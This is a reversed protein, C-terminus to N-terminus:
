SGDCLIGLEELRLAANDIAAGFQRQKRATRCQKAAAVSNSRLNLITTQNEPNCFGHNVGRLNLYSDAREVAVCDGPQFTRKASVVMAMGDAGFDIAYLIAGEGNQDATESSTTMTDSEVAKSTDASTRNLTLQSFPTMGRLVGAPLTPDSWSARYHQTIRGYTVSISESGPSSHSQARLMPSCLAFVLGLAVGITLAGNTCHARGAARSIKQTQRSAGDVARFQNHGYVTRFTQSLPM